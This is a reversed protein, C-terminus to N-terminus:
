KEKKYYVCITSIGMILPHIHNWADRSMIYEDLDKAFLDHKHHPNIGASIINPTSILFFKNANEMMKDIIKYPKNLHELSEFATIIDFKKMDYNQIDCCIFEINDKSYKKNAATICRSDSDVGIVKSAQQSMLHCGYGVGCGIDLITYNNKLFGKAIYYRLIHARGVNDQNGLEWYNQISIHGSM